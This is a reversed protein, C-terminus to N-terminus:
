STRELHRDIFQRPSLVAIERYGSVALLAKDGSIVLKTEGALACALFKDDDPDACVQKPLPPAKVVTAAAAVLDLWPNLDVGPFGAALEEGTRRYEAIIEPSVFLRIIGDRWARLIVHPPGSFFVGSIFVNTDLVLNM